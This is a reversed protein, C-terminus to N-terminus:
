NKLAYRSMKLMETIRDKSVYVFVPKVYNESSGPQDWAKVILDTTPGKVIYMTDKSPSVIIDTIQFTSDVNVTSQSQANTLQIVLIFAFLLVKMQKEIKFNLNM